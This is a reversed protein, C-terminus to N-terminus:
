EYFTIPEQFYDPAKLLRSGYWSFLEGDVLHVATGPFMASVGQRHKEAFPFPESSLLITDLSADRIQQPTLEPYRGNGENAFANEFGCRALM